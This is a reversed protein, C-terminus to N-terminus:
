PARGVNVAFEPRATSVILGTSPDGAQVAAAEKQSSVLVSALGPLIHLSVMTTGEPNTLRLHAGGISDLTAVTNGADDVIDLRHLRLTEPLPVPPAREPPRTLVWAMVAVWGTFHLITFPVMSRM